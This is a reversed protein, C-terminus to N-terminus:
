CFSSSTFLAAKLHNYIPVNPIKKHCDISGLALPLVIGSVYLDCACLAPTASEAVQGLGFASKAAAVSSGFLLCDLSRCTCRIRYLCPRRKHRETPTPPSEWLKKSRSGVRDLSLSRDVREQSISANTRVYTCLFKHILPSRHTYTTHAHKM